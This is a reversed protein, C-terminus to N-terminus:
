TTILEKFFLDKVTGYQRDIVANIADIVAKKFAERGEPSTLEAASHGNIQAYVADRIQSDQKKLEQEMVTLPRVPEEPMKPPEPAKGEGEGALIVQPNGGGALMFRGNVSAEEGKKKKVPKGTAPDIKGSMIGFYLQRAEEFQKMQEVYAEWEDQRYSSELRLSVNMKAVKGDATNATFPELDYDVEEPEPVWDHVNEASKEQGAQAAQAEPSGKPLPGADGKLKANVANMQMFLYGSLGLAALAIIWPFIAAPGGGAKPAGAPKPPKPPKPARKPKEAGEVDIDDKEAM